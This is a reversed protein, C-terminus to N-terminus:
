KNRYGPLGASRAAACDGSACPRQDYVTQTSQWTKANGDQVDTRFELGLWWDAFGSTNATDASPSLANGYFYHKEVRLVNSSADEFTVTSTTGSRTTHNPDLGSASGSASFLIKASLSGNLFEDRELLRRAIFYQGNPLTVV